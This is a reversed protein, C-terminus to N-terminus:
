PLAIDKLLLPMKLLSKDTMIYIRLKAKDPLKDRFNYVHINGMTMTGSTPLKKGDDGFFEVSVIRAEPDVINVIISNEDISTFGGFLSSFAKAFSEGLNEFGEQSVAKEKGKQKLAEYEKKTLATIEIQAKKLIPSSFPKGMKEMFDNIIVVSDPDNKPVFLELEGNLEKVHTARRSPNKLKITIEAKGSEPTDIKSFGKEFIGKKSKLLSKGLNDEAKSVKLQIGRADEILDGIVNLKIDLSAFFHGTTRTDKVESVNFRINQANETAWLLVPILSIVLLVGLTRM